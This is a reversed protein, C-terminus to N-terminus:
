LVPLIWTKVVWIAFAILGGIVAVNVISIVVFMVLSNRFFKSNDLDDM